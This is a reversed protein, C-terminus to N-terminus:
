VQVSWKRQDDGEPDTVEAKGGEEQDKVGGEFEWGRGESGAGKGGEGAGRPTQLTMWNSVSSCMLSEDVEHNGTGSSESVEGEGLGPGPNGGGRDRGEFHDTKSLDRALSPSFPRGDKGNM